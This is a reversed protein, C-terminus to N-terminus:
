QNRAGLKVNFKQVTRVAWVTSIHETNKEFCVAVKARYKYLM